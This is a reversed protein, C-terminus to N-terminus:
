CAWASPAKGFNGSVLILDLVNVQGDDNLDAVPNVSPNGFAAGVAVADMIDIVGDDNVDGAVLEVSALTTQPAVVVKGVCYSPLYGAADATFDYTGPALGAFLFNGLGDTMTSLGTGEIIVLAGDNNDPARGQLAV